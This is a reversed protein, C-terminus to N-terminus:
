NDKELTLRFSTDVPSYNEIRVHVIGIRSQFLVKENGSARSSFGLRERGEYISLDLDKKFRSLKLKYFQGITLGEIM